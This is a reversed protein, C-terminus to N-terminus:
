ASSQLPFRSQRCTSMRIVSTSVRILLVAADKHPGGITTVGGNISEVCTRFVAKGREIIAIEIRSIKPKLDRPTVVLMRGGPLLSNGKEGAMLQLTGKDILRYGSFNFTERLIKGIDELAPDMYRSHRDAKIVQIQVRIGLERPGLDSTANCRRKQPVIVPKVARRVNWGTASSVTSKELLCAFEYNNMRPYKRMIPVLTDMAMNGKGKRNLARITEQLTKDPLTLDQEMAYLCLDKMTQCGAQWAGARIALKMAIVMDQLYVPPSTFSELRKLFPGATEWKGNKLLAFTYFHLAYGSIESPQLRSLTESYIRGATKRQWTPGPVSSLLYYIEALSSVSYGRRQHGSVLQRIERYQNWLRDFATAADEQKSLGAIERLLIIELRQCPPYADPNVSALYQRTSSDQINFHFSEPVMDPLPRTEVLHKRANIGACGSLVLAYLLILSWTGLLRTM